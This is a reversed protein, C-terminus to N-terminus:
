FVMDLEINMVDFERNYPNKFSLLAATKIRSGEEKVLIEPASTSELQV